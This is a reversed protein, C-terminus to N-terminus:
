SAKKFGGSKKGSADPLTVRSGPALRLQGETVVTEGAEIGESVVLDTERRIGTKIPRVEV